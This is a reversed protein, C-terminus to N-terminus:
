ICLRATQSGSQSLFTYCGKAYSPLSSHGGLPKGNLRAVGSLDSHLQLQNQCAFYGRDQRRAAADAPIAPQAAVKVSAMRFRDVPRQIEVAISVETKSSGGCAAKM